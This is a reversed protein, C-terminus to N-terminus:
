REREREREAPTDYREAVIGAYREFFDGRDARGAEAEVLVDELDDRPQHCLDRHCPKCLYEFEKNRRDWRDGLKDYERAEEREVTAGCAICTHDDDSRLGWM